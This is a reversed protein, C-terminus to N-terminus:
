QSALQMTPRLDATEVGKPLNARAVDSGMASMEQHILSFMVRSGVLATGIAFGLVLCYLGTQLVLRRLNIALVQNTVSRGIRGSADLLIALMKPGHCDTLAELANDFVREAKKLLTPNEIRNGDRANM